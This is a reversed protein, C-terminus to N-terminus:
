SETNGPTEPLIVGTKPFYRSYDCCLSSNMSNRRAASVSKLPTRSSNAPRSLFFHSTSFRSTMSSLSEWGSVSCIDHTMLTLRRRRLMRSTPIHALISASGRGAIMLSRSFNITDYNEVFRDFVGSAAAAPTKSNQLNFKVTHSVNTFYM